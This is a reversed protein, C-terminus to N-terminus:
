CFPPSPTRHYTRHRARGAPPRGIVRLDRRPRESCCHACWWRAALLPRQTGVFVSRELSKVLLSGSECRDRDGPDRDPRDGRRDDAPASPSGIFARSRHPSLIETSRVSSRRRRPTGQREAGSFPLAAIFRHFANELSQQNDKWQSMGPRSSKTSCPWFRLVSSGLHQLKPRLVQLM